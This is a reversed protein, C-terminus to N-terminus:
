VEFLKWQIQVRTCVGYASVVQFIFCKSNLDDNKANVRARFSVHSEVKPAYLACIWIGVSSTRVFYRRFLISVKTTPKFHTRMWHFISQFQFPILIDHARFYNPSKAQERASHWTRFLRFIADCVLTREFACILVFYFRVLRNADSASEKKAKKLHRQVDNRHWFPMTSM